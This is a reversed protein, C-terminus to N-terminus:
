FLHRLTALLSVGVDGRSLKVRRALPDQRRLRRALRHSLGVIVAAELRMRRDAILGPLRAAEQNLRDVQDLAQNLVQRLGSTLREGRVSEATQGAQALWSEPLYCRGLEDLDAKCDQLHNLVQLAACLADSPAHTAAGEGHLDLLYLGVPNASYRCYDLLEAWSAYRNKVCDQRFAVILDTGRAPDIGTLALSARLGVASAIEAPTLDPGNEQQGLLVAQMADLRAIKQDSPLVTNDAIDDIARAFAYYAHVHPRLSRAILMSGVPFNEDAKGKGSSVDTAPAPGQTMDLVTDLREPMASM